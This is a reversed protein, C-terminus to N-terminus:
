SRPLNRYFILRNGFGDAIAMERVGWPQDHLGPRSYKYGKANLEQHYTELEDVLIRIASGPAADGHHETLHLKCEGRSIGLYLPLGPEHRAEFDVQFGLFGLYLERAKAEDFIRLIPIPASFKM